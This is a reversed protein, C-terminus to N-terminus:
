GNLGRGCAPCSPPWKKILNYRFKYNCKRCVVQAFKGEPDTGVIQPGSGVSKTKQVYARELYDDVEDWGRPREVIKVKEETKKVPVSPASRRNACNPCVMGGKLGDLKFEEAYAESGCNKCKVKVSRVNSVAAM